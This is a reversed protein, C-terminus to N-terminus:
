TKLALILLILIVILVAIVTVSKNDNAKRAIRGIRARAGDMRGQTRDVHRDVDDLMAVHEDLEDGIQISLDRQRGISAGLADLQEDQQAMVQAHYAHVQQNSMESQDPPSAPEDRYPLLESRSTDEDSADRFRVSKNPSPSPPNRKLSSHPHTPPKM